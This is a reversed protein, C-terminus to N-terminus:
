YGSEIRFHSSKCSFDSVCTHCTTRYQLFAISGSFHCCGTRVIFGSSKNSCMCFASIRVTGKVALFIRAQCCVTLTVFSSNRYYCSCRNFNRSIQTLINVTTMCQRLNIRFFCSMRCISIYLIPNTCLTATIETICTSRSRNFRRINHYWFFCCLNRLSFDFSRIRDCFSCSAAIGQLAAAAKCNTSITIKRFKGSNLHITHLDSCLIIFRLGTGCNNCQLGRIQVRQCFPCM